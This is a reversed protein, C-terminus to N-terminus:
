ALKITDGKKLFIVAKKLGAKVGHKGRVFVKKAPLNSITVKKPTVKHEAKIEDILTLKTASEEVIFTYANANSQLSAKETLHTRIIKKM